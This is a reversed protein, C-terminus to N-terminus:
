IPTVENNRKRKEHPEFSFFDFNEVPHKLSRVIIKQKEKDVMYWKIGTRSCSHKLPRVILKQEEKMVNSLETRVKGTYQPGLIEMM